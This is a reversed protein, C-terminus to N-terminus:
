WGLNSGVRWKSTGLGGRPGRGVDHVLRMLSSILGAGAGPCRSERRSKVSGSSFSYRGLPVDLGQDILQSTLTGDQTHEGAPVDRHRNLIIFPM